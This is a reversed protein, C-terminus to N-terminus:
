DGSDQRNMIEELKSVIMNSFKRAGRRNLHNQNQFLDPQATYLDVYDFKAEVTYNSVFNDVGMKVRDSILDLYNKALPYRVLVVKIDNERCYSLIREFIAKNRSDIPDSSIQVLKQKAMTRRKKKSLEGWRKQNTYNIDGHKNIKLYMQNTNSPFIARIDNLIIRLFNFRTWGELLPIYHNALESYYDWDSVRYINKIRHRSLFYVARDIRPTGRSNFTHFGWPLVVLKIDKKIRDSWILKALFDQIKDDGSAINYFGDPTFENKISARAHSDGLFLVNPQIKDRRFMKIQRNFNDYKRVRLHYYVNLGGFLILAGSLFVVLKKVFRKM